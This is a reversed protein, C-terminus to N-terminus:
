NSQNETAVEGSSRQGLLDAPKASPKVDRKLNELIASRKCLEEPMMPNWEFIKTEGVFGDPVVVNLNEVSADGAPKASPKVNQKPNKIGAHRKCFEKPTIPNLTFDGALVHGALEKPVAANLNEMATEEASGQGPLDDLNLNEMAVIEHLLEDVTKVVKTAADM